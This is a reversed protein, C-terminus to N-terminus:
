ANGCGLSKRIRNCHQRSTEVRKTSLAMPFLAQWLVEMAIGGSLRNEDISLYYGTLKNAKSIRWQLTLM